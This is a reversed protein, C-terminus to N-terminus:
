NIWTIRQQPTVSRDTGSACSPRYPAVQGMQLSAAAWPSVLNEPIGLPPIARAPHGMQSVKEELSLRSVLESAREGAPLARGRCPLDHIAGM